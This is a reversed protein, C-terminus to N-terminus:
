LSAVTSVCVRVTLCQISQVGYLRYDVTYVIYVTYDRYLRLIDVRYETESVTHRFVGDQWAVLASSQIM